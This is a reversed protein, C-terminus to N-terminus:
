DEARCGDTIARLKVSLPTHKALETAFAGIANYAAIGGNGESATWVGDGRTVRYGNGIALTAGSPETRFFVLWGQNRHPSFFLVSTTNLTQPSTGPISGTQYVFSATQGVRSGLERLDDKVWDQAVLCEVGKSLVDPTSDPQSHATQSVCKAGGLCVLAAVVLLSISHAKRV